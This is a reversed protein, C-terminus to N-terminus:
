LSHLFGCEELFVQKLAMKEGCIGFLNAETIVPQCGVAQAM